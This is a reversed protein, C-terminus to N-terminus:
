PSRVKPRSVSVSSSSTRYKACPHTAFASASARRATTSRPAFAVHAFPASSRGGTTATRKRSPSCGRKCPRSGPPSPAASTSSPLAVFREHTGLPARHIVYPCHEAGDAGVYSLGLRKPIAFDLQLTSATEERGSVTRFQFDIKPGYFAGEGVGVYFPLGSAELAHKLIEQSENWAAPDDVYKSKAAEGDDRMSFRVRYDGLGLIAYVRKHMELVSACEGAIQEKTCYIHADNICMGRVRLLGSIAGSDEYRYVQGHEALRMPLERYSRKRATFIKHHNPCNM